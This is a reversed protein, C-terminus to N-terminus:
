DRKLRKQRGFVPTEPHGGLRLSYGNPGDSSSDRYEVIGEGNYEGPGLIEAMTNVTTPHDPGIEALIKDGMKLCRGSLTEENLNHFLFVDNASWHMDRVNSSESPPGLSAVLQAETVRAPFGDVTVDHWDIPPPPSPTSWRVVLSCAIIVGMLWGIQKLRQTM